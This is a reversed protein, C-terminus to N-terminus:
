AAATSQGRYRSNLHQSVASLRRYSLGAALWADVNTDGALQRLISEPSLSDDIVLDDPVDGATAALMLRDLRLLLAAPVESPRKCQWERDLLKVVIPEDDEEAWAADFDHPKRNM